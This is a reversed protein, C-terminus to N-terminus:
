LVIVQRLLRPPSRPRDSGRLSKGARTPHGPVACLVPVSLRIGLPLSCSPYFPASLLPSPLPLYFCRPLPLSNFIFIDLSFLDYFMNTHCYLTCKVVGFNLLFLLCSSVLCSIVLFALCCSSNAYCRDSFRCCVCIIM